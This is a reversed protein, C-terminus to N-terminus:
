ATELHALIVHWGATIAILLGVFAFWQMASMGSNFPSKLWAEFEAVM